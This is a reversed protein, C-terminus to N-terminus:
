IKRSLIKYKRKDKTPFAYYNDKIIISFYNEAEISKKEELFEKYNQDSFGDLEFFYPLRTALKFDINFCKVSQATDLIYYKNNIKIMNFAHDCKECTNGLIYDINYNFVSLVMEANEDLTFM